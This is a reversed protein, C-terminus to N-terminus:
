RTWGGSGTRPQQDSASDSSSGASVRGALEQCRVIGPSKEPEQSKLSERSWVSGLGQWHMGQSKLGKRFLEEKKGTAAIIGAATKKGRLKILSESDSDTTIGTGSVFRREHLESGVIGRGLGPNSVGVVKGGFEIQWEQRFLEERLASQKRKWLAQRSIRKSVPVVQPKTTYFNEKEGTLAMPSFRDSICRSKIIMGTNEVLVFPQHERVQNYKLIFDSISL